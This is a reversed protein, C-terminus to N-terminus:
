EDNKLASIKEGRRIMQDSLQLLEDCDALISAAEGKELFGTDRLLRLWYHTKRAEQYVQNMKSFFDPDSQEGIAAEVDAGIATGSQLMQKSLIFERKKGTLHRYLAITRLAFAYSKAQIANEGKFGM